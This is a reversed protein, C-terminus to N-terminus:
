GGASLPFRPSQLAEELLRLPAQHEDNTLELKM